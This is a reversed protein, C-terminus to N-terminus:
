PFSSSSNFRSCPTVSSTTVCASSKARLIDLTRSNVSPRKSGAFDGHTEPREYDATELKVRARMQANQEAGEHAAGSKDSREHHAVRDAAAKAFEGDAPNAINVQGQDTAVPKKPIM